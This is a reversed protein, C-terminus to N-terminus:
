GEPGRSRAARDLRIRLGPNMGQDFGLARYLPEGEQTAHLEVSRVEEEGFWDILAATIARALGRRRRHPEL